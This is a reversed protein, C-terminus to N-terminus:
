ITWSRKTSEKTEVRQAWIVVLDSTADDIDELRNTGKTSWMDHGWQRVWQHIPFHIALYYVYMDWVMLNNDSVKLNRRHEDIFLLLDCICNGDDSKVLLLYWM